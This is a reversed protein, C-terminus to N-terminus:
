SLGFAKYLCLSQSIVKLDHTRTPFFHVNTLFKNPVGDSRVEPLSGMSDVKGTQEVGILEVLASGTLLM